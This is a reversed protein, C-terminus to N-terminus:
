DTSVVQKKGIETMYADEWFFFFLHFSFQLPLQMSPKGPSTSAYIGVFSDNNESSSVLKTKHM